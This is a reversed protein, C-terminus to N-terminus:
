TDIDKLLGAVFIGPGRHVEYKTNLVIQVSARSVRHGEVTEGAVSPAKGSALLLLRYFCYRVVLLM